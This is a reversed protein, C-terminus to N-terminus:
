AVLAMSCEEEYTDVLEGALLEIYIWCLHAMAGRLDDCETVLQMVTDVCLHECIYDDIEDQHENYFDVCDSTYIHYGACGSACGHTAIDTLTDHDYLSKITEFANM